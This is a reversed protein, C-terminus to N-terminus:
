WGTSGTATCRAPRAPARTGYDILLAYGSASRRPSSTSSARARGDPGDAEAGEELPPSLSRLEEDCPSEVEVLRSGELGVRVERLEGGRVRVRRFPLNDLLENAVVVGPALPAVEGM